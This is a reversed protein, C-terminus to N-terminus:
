GGNARVKAAQSRTIGDVVAQQIKRLTSATTDAMVNVTVNVGGGMQGDLAAVIGRGIGGLTKDNLPLAAEAGADGVGSVQGNGTFLTPKTFIGGKAYWNIGVHPIRGKLPNFSGSISFHPLPIHPISISPFKLHFNFLSKIRSVISSVTNHAANMASSIANRVGNFASSTASKVSNWAGSVASKVGNVVSSVTSKVGNWASSAVSKVANFVSSTTSKVSNWASSVASRVANVVSSVVSKLSNWASSAVSKVSNFVSSTISKISNWVSSVVSSIASVVTSIATKIGTWITTATTAIGQFVTSLFTTIGTWVTTIVTKIGTFLTTFFTALGNWITSAATVIMTWATQLATTIATWITTAVTAIGTWVASIATGISTFITSAATKIATWATSLIQKIQSWNQVFFNALGLFPNMIFLIVQGIGSQMFNSIGQVANTFTQKIGNWLNSFFGPIAQWVNKFWDTFDSWIKKGTKTQTFFVVLAAAVAAIAAIVIGWPGFSMVAALGKMGGQAGSLVAKFDKISTVVTRIASLGKFAVVLGGVAAALVKFTGANGAVVKIAMALVNLAGVLGGSIMSIIQTLKEKGISDLIKQVGNVVNAQLNGIAGEFTTTSKAAEVAGKNMGLQTVAKNFEDSSIEGKEMADRFNGTYAGNKKMAEQLKGSAGPIADTLQNWNETTLKGAGATQTMVMAVSQFTDATGGFQANMNGAAQTLGTYDKIGNAALQATTNMVTQTDYVTEDAYTKMTKSAESIEKKGFGAGSMTSSFKQVSDSASAAESVMSGIGGTLTSLGQSAAGAVAGFSLKEKFSTVVRGSSESKQSLKDLEATTQKLGSPTGDFKDLATALQSVDGKAIGSQEAIMKFAADLQKSTATGNKIASTLREGLIARFSEVSTGTAKFLTQLRGVSAEYSAQASKSASLQGQYSKLKGETAVVERQFARYEDEGLDGSQFQAEVQSEASKLVKLKESTNQIQTALLKQKQAILESNGPNFKLLSNVQKLETNVSKTNTETTKLAKDLKTTNGDIEITIGKINSAM